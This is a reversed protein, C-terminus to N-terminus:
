DFSPFNYHPYLWLDSVLPFNMQTLTLINLAGIIYNFQVIVKNHEKLSIAEYKEPGLNYELCM